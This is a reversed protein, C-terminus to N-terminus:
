TKFESKKKDGVCTLGVLSPLGFQGLVNDMYSEKRIHATYVYIGRHLKVNIHRHKIKKLMEREGEKYIYIYICKRTHTHTQTHKHIFIMAYLRVCVCVRACLFFCARAVSM